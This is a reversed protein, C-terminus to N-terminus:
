LHKRWASFARRQVKQLFVWFDPDLASKSTGKHSRGAKGLETQSGKIRDAEQTKSKSTICLSKLIPVLNNKGLAIKMGATGLLSMRIGDSAHPLSKYHHTSRSSLPLFCCSLRGIRSHAGSFLNQRLLIRQWLLELGSFYRWTTLKKLDWCYAKSLFNVMIKSSNSEGGRRM